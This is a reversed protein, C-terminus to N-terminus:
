LSYAIIRSLEKSEQISYTVYEGTASCKYLYCVQAGWVEHLQSHKRQQGGCLEKGHARHMTCVDSRELVEGGFVGGESWLAGTFDPCAPVLPSPCAHAKCAVHRHTAQFIQPPDNM